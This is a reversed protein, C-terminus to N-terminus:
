RSNFCNSNGERLLLSIHFLCVGEGSFYLVEDDSRSRARMDDYWWSCVGVAPIDVGGVELGTEPVVQILETGSQERCVLEIIDM